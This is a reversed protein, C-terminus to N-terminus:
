GARCAPFLVEEEYAELTKFVPVQVAAEQFPVPVVPAGSGAAIIRVVERFAELARLDPRGSLQRPDFETSLLREVRRPAWASPALVLDLVLFPKPSAAIGAVVIREVEAFPLLDSGGQLGRLLLGEAQLVEVM